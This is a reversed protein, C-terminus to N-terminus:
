SLKAYVSTSHGIRANEVLPLNSNARVEALSYRKEVEGNIFVTHLEDREGGVIGTYYEGSDNKYTTVRGKKSVKSIIGAPQKYVEHWQGNARIASCKMAYQQSDRDHKQLLAGGMGFAFNDASYGMVGCATRLITDITQRNIGDGWIIRFNNLVRYGKDNVTSGVNKELIRLMKPIIVVPDDSDPRLVMLGGRAKLAALHEGTSITETAALIDYSDMVCAFIKGEGAFQKIMNMYADSEGDRTWSTITSHESAPISFGVESIDAGYHDMAFMIAGFTDTGMFNILHGMGGIAASEQSSVGRAGFDHLKFPLGSPDGTKELYHSIIQKIHWSTTAVTSMYWVARLMATEIWTTIWPVRTDTNEITVLVNRTPIVLGEAMSRIRVPIKGKLETAIYMWGEYPFPEGHVEWLKAAAQVDEVTVPQTLYDLFPQLGAHVVRDFEGGRSEIYSYVTETGPPYQKFMSPKYSDTNFPLSRNNTMILEKNTFAQRRDSQKSEVKYDDWM